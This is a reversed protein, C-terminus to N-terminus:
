MDMYKDSHQSVLVVPTENRNGKMEYFVTYIGGYIVIDCITKFCSRCAHREQSGLNVQQVERPIFGNKHWALISGKYPAKLFLFSM